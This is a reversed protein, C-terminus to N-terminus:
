QEHCIICSNNSCAQVSPCACSLTGTGAVAEKLQSTEVLTRITERNLQLKAKKKM